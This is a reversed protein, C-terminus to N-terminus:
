KGVKSEWMHRFAALMSKGVVPAAFSGWSTGGFFCIYACQRWEKAWMTDISYIQLTQDLTILTAEKQVEGRIIPGGEPLFNPQTSYSYNIRATVFLHEIRVNFGHPLLKMSILKGNKALTPFPDELSVRILWCSEEGIDAGSLMFLKLRIYKCAACLSWQGGHM